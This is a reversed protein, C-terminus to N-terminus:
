GEKDDCGGITFGGEFIHDMLDNYVNITVRHISPNEGLYDELREATWKARRNLFVQLSKKVQELIELLEDHEDITLLDASLAFDMEGRLELTRTVARTLGTHYFDLSKVYANLANANDLLYDYSSNM